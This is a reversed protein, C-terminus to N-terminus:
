GSIDEGFFLLCGDPDKVHFERMGYSQDFPPRLRGESLQELRSRMSEYLADVERVWLYISINESTARLASESDTRVLHIAAEGHIVIAFSEDESTFRNEFGLIDTYFAVTRRIDSVPVISVADEISPGSQCDASM